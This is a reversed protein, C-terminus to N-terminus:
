LLSKNLATQHEHNCVKVSSSTPPPLVKTQETTPTAQQEEKKIDAPSRYWAKREYKAILYEKFAVENKKDPERDKRPNWKGM